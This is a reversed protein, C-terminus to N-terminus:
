HVVRERSKIQAKIRKVNSPLAGSFPVLQMNPGYQAVNGCYFCISLDGPQPARCEPQTATADSINEGCSLCLMKDGVHFNWLGRKTEPTM